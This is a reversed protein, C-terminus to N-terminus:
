KRTILVKPKEPELFKVHLYTLGNRSEWDIAKVAKRISFKMNINYEKDSLEDKTKGSVKLYQSYPKGDEGVVEIEIDEPSIGLTNLVITAKDDKEVIKYPSMDKVPRNFFYYDSLFDFDLM